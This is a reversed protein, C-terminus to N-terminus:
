QLEMKAELSKPTVRYRKRRLEEPDGGTGTDAEMPQDGPDVRVTLSPEVSAGGEISEAMPNEEAVEELTRYTM